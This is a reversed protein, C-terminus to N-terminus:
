FVVGSRLIINAYPTFEGTRIVARTQATARKFDEHPLYTVPIERGELRTLLAERFPAPAVTRLEEALTAGEVEVAEFLAALVELFPARGPAYALDIREVGRPIPLGADAVVLTDTHGLSAVVRALDPHLLGSRKM